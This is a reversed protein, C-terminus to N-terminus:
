FPIDDDLEGHPVYKVLMYERISATGSLWHYEAQARKEDDFEM